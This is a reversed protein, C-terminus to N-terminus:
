DFGSTASPKRNELWAPIDAAQVPRSILFGQAFDCGVRELYELQEYDEVGEAVVKKGLRHGVKVLTEVITADIPDNIVGNLLTRDIKLIDVPLNKLRALSSYGVGFDDIAITVGRARLATLVPIAKDEDIM